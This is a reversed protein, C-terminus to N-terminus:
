LIQNNMNTYGFVILSVEVLRNALMTVEEVEEKSTITLFSFAVLSLMPPIPRITSLSIVM